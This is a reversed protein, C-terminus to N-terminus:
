EVAGIYFEFAKKKAEEATELWTNELITGQPGTIYWSGSKAKKVSVIGSPINRYYGGNKSAQWGSPISKALRSEGKFVFRELEKQAEEPTDYSGKLFDDEYVGGWGVSGKKKFVTMVSSDLIYIYNGNDKETWECM